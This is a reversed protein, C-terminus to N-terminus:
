IFRQLLGYLILLAFILLAVLYILKHIGGVRRALELFYYTIPGRWKIAIKYAFYLAVLIVVNELWMVPNSFDALDM